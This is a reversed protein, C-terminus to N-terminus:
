YGVHPGESSRKLAHLLGWKRNSNNLGCGTQNVLIKVSGGALTILSLSVVNPGPVFAIPKVDHLRVKHITLAFRQVCFWIRRLGSCFNGGASVGCGDAFMCASLVGSFDLLRLSPSRLLDFRSEACGQM